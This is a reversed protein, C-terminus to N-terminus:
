QTTLAKKNIKQSGSVSCTDTDTDLTHTSLFAESSADHMMKMELCTM